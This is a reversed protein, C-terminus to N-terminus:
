WDVGMGINLYNLENMQKYFFEYYLGVMLNLIIKINLFIYVHLLFIANVTLGMELFVLSQWELADRYFKFIISDRDFVLFMLPYQEFSDAGQEIWFSASDKNTSFVRGSFDFSHRNIALFM